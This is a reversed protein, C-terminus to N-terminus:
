SDTFLVSVGDAIAFAIRVPSTGSSMAVNTSDNSDNRSASYLCQHTWAYKFKDTVNRAELLLTGSLVLRAPTKERYSWLAAVATTLPIKM